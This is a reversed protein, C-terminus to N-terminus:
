GLKRMRECLELAESVSHVVEYWGRWSSRFAQEDPTLKWCSAPKDGDKIEVLVNTLGLGVVVDPAGDGLLSTIWVSAGYDRMAKVIEAQNADV